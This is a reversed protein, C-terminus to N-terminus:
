NMRLGPSLRLLCGLFFLPSDSFHFTPPTKSAKPHSQGKWSHRGLAPSCPRAWAPVQVPPSLSPRWLPEADVVHAAAVTVVGALSRRRDPHFRSPLKEEGPIREDRRGSTWNRNRREGVVDSHFLIPRLM